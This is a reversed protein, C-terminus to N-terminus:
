RKKKLLPAVAIVKGHQPRDKAKDPIILGGPSVSPTPIPEIIVNDATPIYCETM